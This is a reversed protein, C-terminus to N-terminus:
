TLSHYSVNTLATIKVTSLGMDKQLVM